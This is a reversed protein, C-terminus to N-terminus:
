QLSTLIKPSARQRWCSSFLAPRSTRWCAPDRLRLSHTRRAVFHLTGLAQLWFISRDFTTISKMHTPNVEEWDGFNQRVSGVSDRLAKSVKVHGMAAEVLKREVVMVHNGLHALDLVLSRREPLLSITLNGQCLLYMVRGVMIMAHCPQVHYCIQTICTQRVTKLGEMMCCAESDKFFTIMAASHFVVDTFACTCFRSGAWRHFRVM